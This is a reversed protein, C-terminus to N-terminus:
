VKLKLLEEGEAVQDGPAYLLELVEGDAPAAITHEMKMAELRVLAQGKSVRQSAEVLVAHARTACADAMAKAQELGFLSTYTPKDGAADKGAPYNPAMLYLKKVGRKNLVEGMAMAPLAAPRYHGLFAVDVFGLLTMGVQAFALPAALASALIGALLRSM